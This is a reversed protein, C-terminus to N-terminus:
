VGVLGQKQAMQREGLWEVVKHGEWDGWLMEGGVVSVIKRGPHVLRMQEVPPRELETPAEEEVVAARQSGDLM